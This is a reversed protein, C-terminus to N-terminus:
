ASLKQAEGRIASPIRLGKSPILVESGIKKEQLSYQIGLGLQRYNRYLRHIEPDSDYTLVWPKSLNAVCDRVKQHDAPNYFSTYLKSGKRFYPPDICFISREPLDKDLQAMFEIADLNSFHIREKYKSIRKIKDVLSVKNFRCDIKYNGEQALGGIVGGGKIVGSRNTRNLFFAAFGLSLTDEDNQNVFIERQRQWEEIDITSVEIKEIFDDTFHLISKWFSAISRDIDNLHIEDAHGDYLLSLALGGGGAYPEAYHGRQLRNARIICGLENHLSTKGGPYRLPSPHKM